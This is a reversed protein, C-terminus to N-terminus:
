TATTFDERFTATVQAPHNDTKTWTDCVWKRPVTEGNLLYWFPRYGGQQILFAEIENAEDLTLYDWRLSVVKRIHNLGTPSAQVFGDGFPTRRLSIEPSHGTGPSPRMPPNFTPLAM